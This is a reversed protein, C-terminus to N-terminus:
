NKLMKQGLLLAGEAKKAALQAKFEPSRKDLAKNDGSVPKFGASLKVQNKPLAAIYEKVEKVSLKLLAEDSLSIVKGEKSAELKLNEVEAKHASAKAAEGAENIASIKASLEVLKSELEAFKKKGEKGKEEDDAEAEGEMEKKKGEAEYKCKAELALKSAEIIQEETANEPLGLALAINKMSPKNTTQTQQSFFLGKTAAPNSVIDVCYIENFRVYRDHGILEEEAATSASLGFENPLKEAMEILKSYNKDSKLLHLDAIIKGGDRRFEKLIGNIDDAGADHDAGFRVKVGDKHGKALALFQDISKDDIQLNHGKAEGRSMVCVGYIVGSQADIKSPSLQSFQLM